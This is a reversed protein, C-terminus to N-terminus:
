GAVPLSVQEFQPMELGLEHVASVLCCLNHCIVKCLVENVQGEYSKSKLSEGFKRKIMSFTTEVNSRVHYHALFTDRQLAFLHYMRDWAPATPAPTQANPDLRQVASRVAKAEIRLDTLRQQAQTLETLLWNVTEDAQTIERDLGALLETVEM